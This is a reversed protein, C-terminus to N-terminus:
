SFKKLELSNYEKEEEAENCKVIYQNNIEFINNLSDNLREDSDKLARKEINRKINDSLGCFNLEIIELYICIFFFECISIFILICKSFIPLDLYLFIETLISSIVLLEFPLFIYNIPYKEIIINIAVFEFSYLIHYIFYFIIQFFNFNKFFFFINDIYYKGEFKVAEFWQNKDISIYSILLYAIIAIIENIIGIIYTLKYTSIYYKEILIKCYIMFLSLCTFEIIQMLYFIIFDVTTYHKKYIDNNPFSKIFFKIFSLIIIITISIYQHKYYNNKFLSISIIYTILIFIFFNSSKLKRLKEQVSSRLFSDLLEYILILLATAIILIVKNNRKKIKYNNIKYSNNRNRIIELIFCFIFGLFSPILCMFINNDFINKFIEGIIAKIITVFFLILNIYIYKKDLKGLSIYKGM